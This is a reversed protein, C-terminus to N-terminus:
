VLFFIMAVPNSPTSSVDVLYSNYSFLNQMLKKLLTINGILFDYLPTIM